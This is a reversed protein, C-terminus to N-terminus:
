LGVMKLNELTLHFDAATKTITGAEDSNKFHNAQSGEGNMPCEDLNIDKLSGSWTYGGLTKYMLSLYLCIIVPAMYQLTVACLYYFVAAIQFNKLIIYSYINNM